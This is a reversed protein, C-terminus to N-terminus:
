NKIILQKDDDFLNYHKNKFNEVVAEKTKTDKEYWGYIFRDHYYKAKTKNCTKIDTKM